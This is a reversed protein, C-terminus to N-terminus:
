ENRDLRTAKLLRKRIKKKSLQILSKEIPPWAVSGPSIVEFHGANEVDILEIKEGSAKARQFYPTVHSLPVIGDRRGNILVIPLDSPTLNIPSGQDYRQPLDEPLGGMLEDVSSGCGRGTRDLYTRLDVIGALSVVGSLPLPDPDYIGSREPIQSRHALWLALHGGASHGTVVVRRLNLNYQSALVRLHNVGKAVDLFTNPWGGGTNGVRRYELNWTAFGKETLESAMADMLHLDFQSLWCGGHIIVIVPHPGKTDPIRLDGYQFENEGYSITATPPITKIQAVDEVTMLKKEQGMLHINLTGTLFLLLLTKKM